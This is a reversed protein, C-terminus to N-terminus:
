VIAVGFFKRKDFVGYSKEFLLGSTCGWATSSDIDDSVLIGKSKLANAALNYEFTQWLFGHDSDHLWLDIGPTEGIYALLDRKLSGSLLHFRWNGSGTYVNSTTHDVDFSHLTGGIKELAAMIVNTTIGNAIGTEVVIKPKRALIYAYLFSALGAECDYNKKYNTGSKAAVVRDFVRAGEELHAVNLDSMHESHSLFHTTSPSLSIGQKELWNASVGHFNGKTFYRIRQKVLASKSNFM